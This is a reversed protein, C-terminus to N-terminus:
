LLVSLNLNPRCYIAIYKQTFRVYIRITGDIITWDSDLMKIMYLGQSGYVKKSTGTRM